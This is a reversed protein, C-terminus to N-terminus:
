NEPLKLCYVHTYCGSMGGTQTMLYIRSGHVGIQPLFGYGGVSADPETFLNHTALSTSRGRSFSMLTNGAAYGAELVFLNDRTFALATSMSNVSDLPLNEYWHAGDLSLKSLCRDREDLVYLTDESAGLLRPVDGTEPSIEIASLERMHRLKGKRSLEIIRPIVWDADNTVTFDSSVLVNRSEANVIKSFAVGDPLKDFVKVWRLKGNPRVCLAAPTREAIADTHIERWGVILIDGNSLIALDTPTTFKSRTCDFEWLSDGNASVKLLSWTWIFDSKNMKRSKRVPKTNAEHGTESFAKPPEQPRRLRQAPDHSCLLYLNNQKDLRIEQARDDSNPKGYNGSWLVSDDGSALKRVLVNWDENEVMHCGSLVPCGDSGVAMRTLSYGFTNWCWLIEAPQDQALCSTALTILAFIIRSM